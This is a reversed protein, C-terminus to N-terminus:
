YYLIPKPRYALYAGFVAPNIWGNEGFVQKHASLCVSLCVSRCLCTSMCRSLSSPQVAYRTDPTAGHFPTENRRWPRRRCARSLPKAMVRSWELSWGVIFSAGKDGTVETKTDPVTATSLRNLKGYEFNRSERLGSIKPTGFNICQWSNPPRYVSPHWVRIM